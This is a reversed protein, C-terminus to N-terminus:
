FDYKLQEHYNRLKIAMSLKIDLDRLTEQAVQSSALDYDGMFRQICELRGQKKELQTLVLGDIGSSLLMQQDYSGGSVLSTDEIGEDM